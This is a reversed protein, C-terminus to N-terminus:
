VMDMQETSRLWHSDETVVRVLEPNNVSAKVAAALQAVRLRVSGRARYGARYVFVLPRELHRGSGEAFTFHEGCWCIDPLPRVHWGRSIVDVLAGGAFHQSQFWDPELIRHADVKRLVEPRTRWSEACTLVIQELHYFFDYRHGYLEFMLRFLRPWHEGLRENFL